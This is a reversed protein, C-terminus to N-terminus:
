PEEKVPSPPLPERGPPPQLQSWGARVAGALVTAAALLALAALSGVVVNLFIM